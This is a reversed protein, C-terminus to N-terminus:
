KKLKKLKYQIKTEEGVVIVDLVPISKTNFYIEFNIKRANKDSYNLLIQRALSSLKNEDLNGLNVRSIVLCPFSKKTLKRFVQTNEISNRFAEGGYSNYLESLGRANTSVDEHGFHFWIQNSREDFDKRNDELVLTIIKHYQKETIYKENLLHKIRCMFSKENTAILGDKRVREIEEKTYRTSHFCITCKKRLISTMQNELLQFDPYYKNELPKYHRKKRYAHVNNIFTERKKYQTILFKNKSILDMIDCDWSDKINAIFDSSKVYNSIYICNNKM